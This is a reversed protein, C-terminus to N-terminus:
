IDANEFTSEVAENIIKNITTESDMIAPILYPRKPINEDLRGFEHTAAYEVESGMRAIIGTPGVKVERIAELKGGGFDEKSSSFQGRSFKDVSSPLNVKSFRFAGVISGLLRGTRQTIKDSVSQTIHEGASASTQIWYDEASVMGIYDMIVKFADALISGQFLRAYKKMEEAKLDLNYDIDVLVTKIRTM